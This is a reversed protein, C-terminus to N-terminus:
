PPPRHGSPDRPPLPPSGPRLRGIGERVLFRRGRDIAVDAGAAGLDGAVKRIMEERSLGRLTRVYASVDGIRRRIAALINPDGGSLSEITDKVTGLPDRVMDGTRQRVRDVFGKALAPGGIVVVDRTFGGVGRLFRGIPERGRGGLSPLSVEGYPFAYRPSGPPTGDLGRAVSGIISPALPPPRLNQAAWISLSALLLAVVTAVGVHEVTAQGHQPGASRQRFM